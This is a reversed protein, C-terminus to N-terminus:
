RPVTGATQMSRVSKADRVKRAVLQPEGQDDTIVVYEHRFEEVAVQDRYDMTGVLGLIAAFLFLWITIWMMSAISRKRRYEERWRNVPKM